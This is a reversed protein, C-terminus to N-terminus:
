SCPGNAIALSGCVLRLFKACTGRRDPAARPLTVCCCLPCEVYCLVHDDADGGCEAATAHWAHDRGGGGRSCAAVARQCSGARSSPPGSQNSSM